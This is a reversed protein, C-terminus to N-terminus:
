QKRQEVWQRLWEHRLELSRDSFSSKQSSTESKQLDPEETDLGEGAPNSQEGLQEFLIEAEGHLRFEFRQKVIEVAACPHEAHVHM